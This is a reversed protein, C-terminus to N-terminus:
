CAYKIKYIQYPAIIRALNADMNHHRLPEEVNRILLRIRLRLHEVTTLTVFSRTVSWNGSKTQIPGVSVSRPELQSVSYSISDLGTM